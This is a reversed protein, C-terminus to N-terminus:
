GDAFDSGKAWEGGEYPSHALPSARSPMPSSREAKFDKTAINSGETRLFQGNRMISAVNRDLLPESPRVRL